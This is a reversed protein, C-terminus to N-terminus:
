IALYILRFCNSFVVTVRWKAIFHDVDARTSKQKNSLCVLAQEYLPQAGLSLTLALGLGAIEFPASHTHTYTDIHIQTDIHTHMYTCISTRTQIFTHICSCTHMSVHTYTHTHAHAYTHAHAHTHTKMYTHLYTHVCTQTHTHMCAHM